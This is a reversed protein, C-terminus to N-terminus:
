LPAIENDASQEWIHYVVPHRRVSSGSGIAPRDPRGKYPTCPTSINGIGRQPAEVPSEDTTAKVFEAQSTYEDCLQAALPASTRRQSTDM